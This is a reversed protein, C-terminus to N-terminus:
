ETSAGKKPKVDKVKAIRESTKGNHERNKKGKEGGSKELGTLRDEKSKRGEVKEGKAKKKAQKEGNLEDM